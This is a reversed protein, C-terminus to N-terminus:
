LIQQGDSSNRMNRRTFIAIRKWMAMQAAVGNSSSVSKATWKATPSVVLRIIGYKQFYDIKQGVGPVLCLPIAVTSSPLSFWLIFLRREGVSLPKETVIM